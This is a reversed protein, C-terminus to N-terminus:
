CKFVQFTIQLGIILDFADALKKKEKKMEPTHVENCQGLFPPVPLPHPVCADRPKQLDNIGIEVLITHAESNCSAM